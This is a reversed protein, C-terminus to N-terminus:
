TAEITRQVKRGKIDPIAEYNTVTRLAQVNLGNPLTAITGIWIKSGLAIERDVYVTGIFSYPDADPSKADATADECRCPIEIPSGIKVNGTNDFGNAPWLVATQKLNVIEVSPM